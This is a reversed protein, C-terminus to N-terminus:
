KRCEPPHDAPFIKKETDRSLIRTLSRLRPIPSRSSSQSGNPSQLPHADGSSFGDPRKPIEIAIQPMSARGGSTGEDAETKRQKQRGWTFINTPNQLNYDEGCSAAQDQGLNLNDHLGSTIPGPITVSVQEARASELVPQEPKAGTRCVPCTSHSRFWMDICEIHFSHRCNPLLRAKENEEFECLCVACDLGDVFNQSKYHFIPLTELTASDLGVNLLRVPEQGTFSFRRRMSASRQRSRRSFRASERWIWKAYVHLLFVLSAVLLLCIVASVMIKGNIIYRPADDNGLPPHNIDSGSSM